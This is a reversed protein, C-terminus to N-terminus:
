PNADLHLQRMKEVAAKHGPHEDNYYAHNFNGQIEDIKQQAEAPTLGHTASTAGQLVGKETLTSGLQSLIQFFAPNNGMPSNILEKGADGYKDMIHYAAAKVEGMKAEYANGWEQKLTADTAKQTEAQAQTAQLEAGAYWEMINKAAEQTLGSKHAIANFGNVLDQNLEVGEPLEYKYGDNTEPRGLANYFAELEETNGESPLKAVGPVNTLKKYFEERVEDSADETPIPIRSGIMRQASHYGKALSELDKINTFCGEGRIDEPLSSLFDSSGTQPQQASPAQETTATTQEAPAIAAGLASQETMYVIRM